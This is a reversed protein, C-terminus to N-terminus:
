ADELSTLYAHSEALADFIDTACEDLEVVRWADPRAALIQPVPLTGSGVATHPEGKVGPGDKVHLALVRDGLRELSAPVEAGGVSAWYTDVELFVEPELLDALAELGHKGDVIPEFEWWHNHYGVRQGYSAAQQALGNLVEAARALGDRTTFDEDPIGAPLIVLDTGLTAAAEFVEGPADGLLEMAHVSSVTLGLDDAVKRFGKPDATPQFPEVAGYGIGAIRRLTGDRDDALPERVTYLQVSLPRAM